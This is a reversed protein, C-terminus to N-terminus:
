FIQGGDKSKANDRSTEHWTYGKNHMIKREIYVPVYARRVGCFRQCDIAVRKSRIQINLSGWQPARIDDDENM